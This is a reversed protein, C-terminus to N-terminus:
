GEQLVRGGREGRREGRGEERNESRERRVAGSGACESVRM